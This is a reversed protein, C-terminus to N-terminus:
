QAHDKQTHHQPCANHLASIEQLHCLGVKIIDDIDVKLADEQYLELAAGSTQSMMARRTDTRDAETKYNQDCCSMHKMQKYLAALCSSALHHRLVPDSRPAAASNDVHSGRGHMGMEEYPNQMYQLM